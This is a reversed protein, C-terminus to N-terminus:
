RGRRAGREPLRCVGRGAGGVGGGGGDDGDDGRVKEQARRM